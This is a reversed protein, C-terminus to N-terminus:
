AARLEALRAEIAALEARLREAHQEAQVRAAAVIEEVAAHVGPADLLAVMRLADAAKIVAPKTLARAGQNARVTWEGDAYSVTVVLAAPTKPKGAKRPGTKGGSDGPKTGTAAKASESERTRPTAAPSTQDVTSLVPPAPVPAEQRPNPVAGNTSRRVQAKAAMLLDAPAFPLEDRGFRVVVWEDSLTPDTLGVVQGTQGAVQGASETFQVKPKRGAALWDRIVELDQASLGRALAEAVAM